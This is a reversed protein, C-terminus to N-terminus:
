SVILMDGSFSITPLHFTRKLHDRNLSCTIKRHIIVLFCGGGGNPSGESGGGDAAKTESGPTPTCELLVRAQFQYLDYPLQQLDM